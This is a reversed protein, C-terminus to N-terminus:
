HGDLVWRAKYTFDMKVDFIMHGTVKSWGIPTRDGDDLIDFAIGVNLMEKNISNQWLRNCNKRDFEIAEFV